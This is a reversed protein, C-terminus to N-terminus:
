QIAERSDFAKQFSKRKYFKGRFKKQHPNNVIFGEGLEEHVLWDINSGQCFYLTEEDLILEIEDQILSHDEKDKNDFCVGYYFGDCGKGEIYLRLSKGQFDKNEKQLRKANELALETLHIDINSM